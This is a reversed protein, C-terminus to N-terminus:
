CRVRTRLLRTEDSPPGSPTGDRRVTASVPQMVEVHSKAAEALPIEVAVVPVLVGEEMAKYLASHTERLEGPTANGLFVGRVDLEKPMTLRPNIGIPKAKSGVIAVRGGRAMIAFDAVLNVDAAMELLLDFGDAAKDGPLSAKASELYGEARHNVVFHAGANRVVEEGEATGATGVVFCGQNVALQVAALGVAGSAGHVFVAENACAKGRIHLARYATAAPVGVCAGQAFSINSPLSYIQNTSFLAHTAYTGTLSASSYVRDGPRFTDVGPGVSEVTGAGDKGPTYPLSPILKANGAYPGDPGLRVYTDSPNVGAAGMRVLVQGQQPSQLTVSKLRMVDPTGFSECVIAQSATSFAHLWQRHRILQQSLAFAMIESKQGRYFYL